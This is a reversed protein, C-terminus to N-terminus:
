LGAETEKIERTECEKFKLKANYANCNAKEKVPEAQPDTVSLNKLRALEEKLVQMQKQQAMYFCENTELPTGSQSCNFRLENSLLRYDNHFSGYMNNNPHRKIENLKEVLPNHGQMVLRSLCNSKNEGKLCTISEAFASGTFVSILVIIFSLFFKKM